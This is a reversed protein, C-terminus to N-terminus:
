LYMEMNANEPNGTTGDEELRGLVEMYRRSFEHGGSITFPEGPMIMRLIGDDARRRCKASGVVRLPRPDPDRVQGRLSVLRRKFKELEKIKAKVELLEQTPNQSYYRKNVMPTEPPNFDPNVGPIPLGKPPAGATVTETKKPM